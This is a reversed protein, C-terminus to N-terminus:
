RNVSPNKSRGCGTILSSGSSQVAFMSFKGRGFMSSGTFFDARLLRTFFNAGREGSPIFEGASGTRESRTVLARAARLYIVTMQIQM